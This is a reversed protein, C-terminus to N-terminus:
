SSHYSGTEEQGPLLFLEIVHIRPIDFSTVSFLKKIQIQM